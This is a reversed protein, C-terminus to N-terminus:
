QEVVHSNTLVYGRQADVIMGSGTAQVERELQKPIDLDRSAGRSVSSM